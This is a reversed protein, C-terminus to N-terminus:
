AYIAVFYQINSSLKKSQTQVKQRVGNARSRDGQVLSHSKSCRAFSEASTHLATLINAISYLVPASALTTFFIITSVLDMCANFQSAYSAVGLATPFSGLLLAFNSLLPDTAGEVWGVVQEMALFTLTPTVITKLTVLALLSKVSGRKIGGLTM